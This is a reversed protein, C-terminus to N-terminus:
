KALGYEVMDLNLLTMSAHAGCSGHHDPYMINLPSQETRKQLKDTEAGGPELAQVQVASKDIVFARQEPAPSHTGDAASPCNVHM